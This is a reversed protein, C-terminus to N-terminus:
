SLQQAQETSSTGTIGENFKYYLGLTTNSIDTNVGGRIQDFWNLGIDRATRATKWFRFEDISGSLKGAGALSGTATTESPTTLLAGIRGMMNKSTLEGISGTHALVDNYVGDVYFKVAHGSGTNNMVFAYHHWKALTNADIDEGITQQFIGPSANGSQVTVMFPSASATGLLEITIRGYDASSSLENNWDHDAEANNNWMDFVVQKETENNLTGLPIASGTKLWFEVTVGNDFDSKLNSERSGSGYISPLGATDYIDEDYINANQFKSNYESISLSQLSSDSLSGTGPGGKFTIYELKNSIGYGDADDPDNTSGGWGGDQPNSIIAYGNTRPYLNDFIYKEIDLLNNKYENIEM